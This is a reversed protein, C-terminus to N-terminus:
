GREHLTMMVSPRPRLTAVPQEEVEAGPSLRLDYCRAIMAMILTAEVLAFDRGICLRPGGGFPFYAFRHRAEKREAAFRGPDFRYPQEWFAPDRHTVYPSIMLMSGAPIHFGLIEDDDIARRAFMWAPPFLRLTEDIIQRTLALRPYDEASARRDGLVAGAEAQLEAAIDPRRALVYWAWSLTSETTEHGAFFITMVEDRVQKDSMQEGTDADQAQLLMTLLDDPAAEPQSRLLGRREEILGYMVEDLTRLARRFRLNTPTPLYELYPIPMFMSQNLYQLGVDFAEMLTETQAGVDSSFMTRAIIEQTVRTMQEAMDLPGEGAAEWSALLKETAAVMADAFGAVRERHFMPQILRRQRLWFDGESTVLGHGILPEVVEYGKEYNHWNQQLVHQVGDPHAVLFSTAPGLELQVVPGYRQAMDVFTHLPNRRLQPIIGVLPYGAPGPPQRREVIMEAM